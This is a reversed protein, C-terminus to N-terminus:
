LLAGFSPSVVGKRVLNKKINDLDEWFIMKAEM